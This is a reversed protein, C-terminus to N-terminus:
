GTDLFGIFESKKLWLTTLFKTLFLWLVTTYQTYVHLVTYNWAFIPGLVVFIISKGRSPVVQPNKRAFSRIQVMLPELWYWKARVHVNKTTCVTTLNQASLAIFDCQHRAFFRFVEINSFRIKRCIKPEILFRGFNTACVLSNSKRSIKYEFLLNSSFDARSLWIVKGVPYKVTVVFQQFYHM